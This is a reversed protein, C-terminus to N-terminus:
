STSLATKVANAATVLEKAVVATIARSKEMAGLRAIYADLGKVATARDAPKGKAGDSKAIQRTIASIDAGMKEVDKNLGLYYYTSDELDQAARCAKKCPDGSGIYSNAARTKTRKGDAGQIYGAKVNADTVKNVADVYAAHTPYMQNIVDDSFPEYRGYLRCFTNGTNDRTSLSTAVDFEALRIGGLANGRADRKYDYVTGTHAPEGGRAPIEGQHSEVEAKPASPPPTGTKVWKDIL